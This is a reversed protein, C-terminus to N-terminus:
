KIQIPIGAVVEHVEDANQALFRNIEGMASIYATTTDDYDIGDDFVNNSVIVIDNFESIMKWLDSKVKGAVTDRDYIVDEKFMENAVLNSICELIAASDKKKIDAKICNKHVDTPSEITLFGKEKRIRRHREVKKKGEEDYIQMTAIYYKRSEPFKELVDEAFSSKGSGSGGIVLVTMKNKEQKTVSM